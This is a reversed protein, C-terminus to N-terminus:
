DQAALRTGSITEINATEMDWGAEVLCKVHHAWSRRVDSLTSSLVQLLTRSKDPGPSTKWTRVMILAHVWAKLHSPAADDKLVIAVIRQQPSYWMLYPEEKFLELLELIHPYTSRSQQADDMPREMKLLRTLTQLTVGVRTFALVPGQGWRLVGDREFITEQESVVEPSPAVGDTLLRFFALNARQRNLTRMTVARVALYNTGIHISLLLLLSVWTTVPTTIHGVIASGVLMGLLSIITEQSSDKANLEGLNGWKAFHASLSAKASGAAVGCLARLTSATSLLLIRPTRPFAPSLCDIIMAADNFVDAALRWKKCEPELATGLRHAFLITGIRGASDQIITLLLAATPSATADGVGVGSLSRNAM